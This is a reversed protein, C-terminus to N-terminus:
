REVVLVGPYSTSLVWYIVSIRVNSFSICVCLKIVCWSVTEVDTVLM